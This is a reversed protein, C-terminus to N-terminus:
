CTLQVRQISRSGDASMRFSYQPAKPLDVRIRQHTSARPNHRVGDTTSAWGGRLVRRVTVTISGLPATTGFAVTVSTPSSAAVLSRVTAGTLDVSLPTTMM